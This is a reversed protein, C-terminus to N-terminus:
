SESLLKNLKYKLEISPNKIISEVYEKAEKLGMTTNEKVYKVTYLLSKDTEKYYKLVRIRFLIETEETPNKLHEQHLLLEYMSNIETEDSDKLFEAIKQIKQFKDM